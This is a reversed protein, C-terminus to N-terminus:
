TLLSDPCASQIRNGRANFGDTYGDIFDILEKAKDARRVTRVGGFSNSICYLCHSGSERVYYIHGINSTKSVVKGDDDRKIDWAALPAGLMKNLREVSRKLSSKTDYKTM